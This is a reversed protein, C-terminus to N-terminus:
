SVRMFVELTCRVMKFGTFYITKQSRAIVIIMFKKVEDPYTYWNSNYLTDGIENMARTTSTAYYCLIFTWTFSVFICLVNYSFAINIDNITQETQYM